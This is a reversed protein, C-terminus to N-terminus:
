KKTAAGSSKLWNRYEIRHCPGHKEERLLLEIGAVKEAVRSRLNGPGQL